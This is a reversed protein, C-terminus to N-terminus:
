DDVPSDELVQEWYNESTTFRSKNTYFYDGYGIYGSLIVKIRKIIDEDTEDIYSDPIRYNRRFHKVGQKAREANFVSRSRLMWTKGTISDIRIFGDRHLRYRNIYLSGLYTLSLISLALIGVVASKNWRPNM